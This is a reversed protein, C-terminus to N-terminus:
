FLTKYLKMCLICILRLNALFHQEILLETVKAIFHQEMFYM